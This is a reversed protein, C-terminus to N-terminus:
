EDEDRNTTERGRSEERDRKETERREEGDRKKVGTTHRKMEDYSRVHEHTPWPGTDLDAKNNHGLHHKLGVCGRIVAADQKELM